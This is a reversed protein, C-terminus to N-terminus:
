KNPCFYAIDLILQSYKKIKHNQPMKYYKCKAVDRAQAINSKVVRGSYYIKMFLFHFVKM